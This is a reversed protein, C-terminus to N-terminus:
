RDAEELVPRFVVQLDKIMSEEYTRLLQLGKIIMMLVEEHKARSADSPLSEDRHRDQLRKGGGGRARDEHSESEGEGGECAKAGTSRPGDLTNGRFSKMSMSVVLSIMDLTGCIETLEKGIDVFSLSCCKAAFCHSFRIVPIPWLNWESPTATFQLDSPQGHRIWADLNDVYCYYRM